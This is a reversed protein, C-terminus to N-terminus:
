NFLLSFIFLRSVLDFAILHLKEKDDRGKEFLNNM